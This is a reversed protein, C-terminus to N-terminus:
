QQQQQLFVCLYKKNCGLVNCPNFQVYRGNLLADYKDTWQFKIDSIKADNSPAQKTVCFLHKNLKNAVPGIIKLSKRRLKVCIRTFFHLIAFCLERLGSSKRDVKNKPSSIFHSKKRMCLEDDDEDDISECLTYYLLHRIM